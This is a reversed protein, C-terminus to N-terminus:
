ALSMRDAPFPQAMACAGKYDTDLWEAYQAPDLVVPMAKPHLPAVLANPECTLFAYCPGHATNRWIGAFAALPQDAISFWWEERGEGIKPEAFNTFPVLCRQAPTSLMSKWFPSALNRVNTVRKELMRTAGKVMSPLGWLMVDSRIAGDDQRVIMGPRRPYIDCAFEVNPQRIDFRAYQSWTPILAPDTRYHNCM